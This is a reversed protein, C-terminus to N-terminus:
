FGSVMLFTYVQQYVQFYISLPITLIKKYGTSVQVIHCQPHRVTGINDLFTFTREEVVKKGLSPCGAKSPTDFSLFSSLFGVVKALYQKPNRDNHLNIERGGIAEM